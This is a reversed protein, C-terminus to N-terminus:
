YALVVAKAETYFARGHEAGERGVGSRRYGGFPARWDRVGFTNVWVIGARLRDAVGHARGRDRTFCSASLGFETDNALAVVEDDTDFPTVVVVPGFIEERCARAGPVLGTM